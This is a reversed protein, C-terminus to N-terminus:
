AKGIAQPTECNSVNAAGPFVQLRLQSRVYSGRRLEFKAMECILPLSELSLAFHEVLEHRTSIEQV